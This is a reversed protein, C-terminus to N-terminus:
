AATRVSPGSEVPLGADVWDAKGDAYISVNTFGLSELESAANHSNRCTSSACYVVVPTDKGPVLLDAVDAVRDPPLHRAGPLHEQVFYKSPLAELLVLDPQIDIQAQLERRTLIRSM